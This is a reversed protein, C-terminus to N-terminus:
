KVLKLVAVVPRHDSAYEEGIVRHSVVSFGSVPTYALFDITKKPNVSPITFGCDGSCTRQFHRDLTDIVAGGAEANFDGGIILSKSDNQLIRVIETIQLLRNTDNRQADLHTCAFHIKGAGPVKVEVLALVRPEGNTGAATPLKYTKGSSLKYKSLIAVGYNGGDYDISKAFYYNMRTKRALTEAENVSIGSRGTNVDVEQLALLDPQVSSIVGAVANLDIVGEKSPPNAHHINYTMVKLTVAKTSRYAFSSNLTAPIWAIISLSLLAAIAKM